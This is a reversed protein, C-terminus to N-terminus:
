SEKKLAPNNSGILSAEISYVKVPGFEKIIRVFLGPVTSRFIIEDETQKLPEEDILGPIIPDDKYVNIDYSYLSWQPASLFKVDLDEPGNMLLSEGVKLDLDNIRKFVDVIKKPDKPKTRGFEAAIDATKKVFNDYFPRRESPLMDPQFPKPLLTM